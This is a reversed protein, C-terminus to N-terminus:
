RGSWLCVVRGNSVKADTLTGARVARWATAQLLPERYLAKKLSDLNASMGNLDGGRWASWMVGEAM